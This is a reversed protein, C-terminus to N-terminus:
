KTRRWPSLSTPTATLPVASAYSNIGDGDYAVDGYPSRSDGAINGPTARADQSLAFIPHSRGDAFFWQVTTPVTQTNGAQDVIPYNPMSYTILAHSTGQLTITTTGPVGNGNGSSFDGGAATHNQVFGDGSFELNGGAAFNETGTCVRNQGNVEYTYRRLYGTYPATTANQDVMIATRPLGASDMWQVKHAPYGNDSTVVSVTLATSEEAAFLGVVLLAAAVCHASRLWRSPFLEFAKRM